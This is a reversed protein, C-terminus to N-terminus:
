FLSLIKRLSPLGSNNVGFRLRYNHVKATEKGLYEHPIISAIFRSASSNPFGTFVSNLFFHYDYRSDSKPHIGHSNALNTASTNAFGFDTILARHTKDEILINNLHLDNHRLGYQQFKYLTKLVQRIIDKDIKSNNNITKISNYENENFYKHKNIIEIIFDNLLIILPEDDM